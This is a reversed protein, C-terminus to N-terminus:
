SSRDRYREFIIKRAERSSTLRVLSQFYYLTNILPTDEIKLKDIKESRVEREVNKQSRVECKVKRCHDPVKELTESILRRRLRLESKM